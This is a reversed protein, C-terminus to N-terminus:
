LHSYSVLRIGAEAILGRVLPSVLAALEEPHRYSPM